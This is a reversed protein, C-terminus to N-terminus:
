NATAVCPSSARTASAIITGGTGPAEEPPAVLRCLTVMASLDRPCTGLPPYHINRTLYRLWQIQPNPPLQQALLAAEAIADIPTHYERDATTAFTNNLNRQYMPNRTRNKTNRRRQARKTNKLRRIRRHEGNEDLPVDTTREDISM